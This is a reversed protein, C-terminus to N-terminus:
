TRRFAQATKVVFSEAPYTKGNVTFPATARYVDIGTRMLANVFKV